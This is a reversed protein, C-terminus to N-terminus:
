KSEFDEDALMSDLLNNFMQNTGSRAKGANLFTDYLWNNENNYLSHDTLEQFSENLREILKKIEESQPVQNVLEFEINMYTQILKKFLYELKFQSDTENENIM